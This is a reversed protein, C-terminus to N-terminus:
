LMIVTKTMRTHMGVRKFLEITVDFLWQLWVPNTSAVLDGDAYFFSVKERVTHHFGEPGAENEVM